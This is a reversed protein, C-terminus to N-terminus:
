SHEIGDLERGFMFNRGRYVPLGTFIDDNGACNGVFLRLLFERAELRHLGIQSGGRLGLLNFQAYSNAVSAVSGAARIQLQDRDSLLSRFDTANAQLPLAHPGTITGTKLVPPHRTDGDGIPEVGM